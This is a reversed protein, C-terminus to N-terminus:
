FVRSHIRSFLIKAHPQQGLGFALASAHLLHVAALLQAGGVLLLRRYAVGVVVRGTHFSGDGEDQEGEGYGRKGARAMWRWTVGSSKRAERRQKMSLHGEGRCALNGELRTDANRV